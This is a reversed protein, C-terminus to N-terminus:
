AEPRRMKVNNQKLFQALAEYPQAGILMQQHLMFTPVANVGIEYAFSWDQDVAAQYARTKLIKQASNEPLDVSKALEILTNMKGINKGDAFYARFAAHHFDDGKGQSEAWKGLEQALRSNYTKKRDGFPLDEKAAVQQLCAKM